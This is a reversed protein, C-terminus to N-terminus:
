TKENLLFISRFSDYKKLNCNIQFIRSLVSIINGFGVLKKFYSLITKGLHRKSTELTM